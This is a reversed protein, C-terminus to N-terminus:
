WFESLREMLSQRSRVITQHMGHHARIFNGLGYGMQQRDAVLDACTMRTFNRVGTGM